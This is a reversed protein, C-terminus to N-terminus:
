SAWNEMRNSIFTSKSNGGAKTEMGEETMATSLPPDKLYETVNM